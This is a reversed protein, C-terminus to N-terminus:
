SANNPGIISTNSHSTSTKKQFSEAALAESITNARDLRPLLFFFQISNKNEANWGGSCLSLFNGFKMLLLDFQLTYFSIICMSMFCNHSPRLFCVSFLSLSSPYTFFNQPLTYNSKLLANLDNSHIGGFCGRRPGNIADLFQFTPARRERESKHNERFNNNKAPSSFFVWTFNHKVGQLCFCSSLLGHSSLLRLELIRMSKKRETVWLVFLRSQALITACGNSAEWYFWLVYIREAARSTGPLHHDFAVHNRWGGVTCNDEHRVFASHMTQHHSETANRCTDISLKEDITALSLAVPLSFATCLQSRM